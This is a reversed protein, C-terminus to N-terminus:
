VQPFFLGLFKRNRSLAVLVREAFTVKHHCPGGWALWLQCHGGQGHPGPNVMMFTVSSCPNHTKRWNGLVMSVLCFAHLCQTSSYLHLKQQMQTGLINLTGPGYFMLAACPSHLRGLLSIHGILLWPPSTLGDSM